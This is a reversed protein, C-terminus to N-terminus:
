KNENLKQVLSAMKEAWDGGIWGPMLMAHDVIERADQETIRPPSMAPLIAATAMAKYISKCIDWPVQLKQSYKIEGGCVECDEQEGHYACASCLHEITVTFNGICESKMRNTIEPKGNLMPILAANESGAVAPSQVPVPAAYFMASYPGEYSPNFSVGGSTIMVCPEQKQAEDIIAQLRSIEAQLQKISGESYLNDFKAGWESSDIAEATKRLDGNPAIFAVPKIEM